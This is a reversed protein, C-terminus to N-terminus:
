PASSPRTMGFSLLRASNFLVYIEGVNHLIAGMIPSVIGLAALSLMLMSSGAGILLNQNITTRTQRSLRIALPLRQLDNTMLAVDASQLAV